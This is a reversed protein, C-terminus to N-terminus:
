KSHKILSFIFTEIRELVAKAEVDHTMMHQCVDITRYRPNGKEDIVMEFLQVVSEDIKSVKAQLNIIWICVLGAFVIALWHKDMFECFILDM